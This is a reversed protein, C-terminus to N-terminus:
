EDAELRDACPDCVDQNHFIGHREGPLIEKLCKACSTAFFVSYRLIILPGFVITDM